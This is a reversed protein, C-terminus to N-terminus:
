ASRTTPLLARLREGLSRAALDKDLFADGGRAAVKGALGPEDAYASMVVVFAEPAARRVDPLAALGDRGPMDVDLLVLDPQTQEAQAIAEAGDRAEAVVAFDAEGELQLRV